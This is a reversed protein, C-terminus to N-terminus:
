KEVKIRNNKQYTVSNPVFSDGIRGASRKIHVDWFLQLYGKAVNILSRMTVAKSRGTSRESLFHPVEAFLYGGRILKVLLEAQYLFGTTKLIIGELISKRYLVTGNTYNLNTGFSINMIMRYFSSVLRRFRDRIEINYIFPVVIDVEEMISLFSFVERPDNENDGPLMVVIDKTATKAGDWFSKGIGLPKVHSLLKVTSNRNMIDKVINSTNDSSGDNVVIIEGDINLTLFVDLISNIAQCINKEENLAPVIASVSYKDSM